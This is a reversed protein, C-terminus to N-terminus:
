LIFWVDPDPVGQRDTEAAGDRGDHQNCRLRYKKSLDSPCAYDTKRVSAGVIAEPEEVAKTGAPLALTDSDGRRVDAAASTM